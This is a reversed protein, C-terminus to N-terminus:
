SIQALFWNRETLEETAEIQQALTTLAKKDFTNISILKRALRIINLYNTKHYGMVRKRRIYRLMAELHAELLDFEELEFYIKLLLTKAALNLLLDRYNSKQLLQLAEDYHKRNYELRARNFSYSSERYKKELTNKYNNIFQETWAFHETRLGAGVANHYTFRSLLGNELLINKELGERYLDFLEEVYQGQGENAQRVCYNIALLYLDRAENTTFQYGNLFLIEKFARFSPEKERRTQMLYCHYYIAIAPINLWDSEQVLQLIEDLWSIQHDAQYITRHPISLCAHRLKTILYSRDLNRTLEGLNAAQTPHQSTFDLYQEWQITYHMRYYSAERLNQQELRQNLRKLTQTFDNGLGRKRFSNALHLDNQLSDQEWEVQLLFQCVLRFLYSMQLDFEVANFPANPYIAKFVDAKSPLPKQAKL